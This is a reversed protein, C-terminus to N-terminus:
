CMCLTSKTEPLVYVPDTENRGVKGESLYNERRDMDTLPGHRVYGASLWSQVAVTTFHFMLALFYWLGTSEGIV